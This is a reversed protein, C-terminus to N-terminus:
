FSSAAHEEAELDRLYFHGDLRLCATKRGVLGGLQEALESPFAVAGWRFFAICFGEAKRVQLLQGCCEELEALHHPAAESIKKIEACPYIM